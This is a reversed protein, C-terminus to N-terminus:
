SGPTLREATHRATGEETNRATPTQTNFYFARMFTAQAAGVIAAMEPSTLPSTARSSAASLGATIIPVPSGLRKASNSFRMFASKLPSNRDGELSPPTHSPTPSGITSPTASTPSTSSIEILEPCEDTPTDYKNPIESTNSVDKTAYIGAALFANERKATIKDAIAEIIATAATGAGYIADFEKIDVVHETDVRALSLNMWVPIRPDSLYANHIFNNNGDHMLLAEEARAIITQDYHNAAYLIIRPNKRYPLGAGMKFVAANYLAILVEARTLCGTDVFRAKEAAQAIKASQEARYAALCALERSYEEKAAIAEQIAAAATGAGYMRDFEAINITHNREIHRLTVNLQITIRPDSFSVIDIFNFRAHYELANNVRDIINPDYPNVAYLYLHLYRNGNTGPLRGALVKHQKGAGIKFVAANYLTVLVEAPTLNGTSIISSPM